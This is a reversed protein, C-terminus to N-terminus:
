LSIYCRFGFVHMARATGVLLEFRLNPKTKSRERKPSFFAGIYKQFGGKRIPKEVGQTTHRQRGGEGRRRRRRTHHKEEKNKTKKTINKEGKNEWWFLLDRGTKSSAYDREDFDLWREVGGDM